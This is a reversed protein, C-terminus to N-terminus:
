AVFRPYEDRYILTPAFLFYLFRQFDPCAIVNMDNDDDNMGDEKHLMKAKYKLTRPINERVFAHVKMILRVQECSVVMSSASPLDYHFIYKLPLVLMLVIHLIYAVLFAIDIHKSTYCQHAWYNYCPFFVVITSMFMLLWITIVYPMKGFCWRFLELNLRLSGPELCDHVISNVAILLLGAWFINCVIRFHPLKSIDTLLSNRVVFRKEKWELSRPRHEKEELLSNPISGNPVEGNEYHQLFYGIKRDFTSAM